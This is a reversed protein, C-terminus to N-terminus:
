SDIGRFAYEIDSRAQDLHGDAAALADAWEDCITTEVCSELSELASKIQGIAERRHKNTLKKDLWGATKPM